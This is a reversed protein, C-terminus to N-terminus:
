NIIRRATVYRDNYYSNTNLNDIVVGRQPNASHIFEGNGIYIGVHGIKTKAENYFLILDGEILNERSVETGSQIQESAVSALNIGFNSFIYKTFGSCDFGSSPTKGGVVYSYGLYNKAYEVVSVGLNSTNQKNSDNELNIEINSENALKREEILSRSSVNNSIENVIKKSVYGSITKSTIKYWDGEESEIEVIDGYDLFDIVEASSSASKRVRGTEVNIKGRKNESVSTTVNNEITNNNELNTNNVSNEIMTNEISNNSINNLITNDSVLNNVIENNQSEIDSTTIQTNALPKNTKNKLIWGTVTGDTVQIWNNLESKINLKTGINLESINSSIFSPLKKLYTSENLLVESNDNDEKSDYVSVKNDEDNNKINSNVKNEDSINTKDNNSTNNKSINLFERKVYGEYNNYKIKCWEGNDELIEVKDAEYLNTIIKSDTNAKERVRLATSSVTATTAFVKTVLCVLTVMLIILIRKLAKM